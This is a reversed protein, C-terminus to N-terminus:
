DISEFVPTTGVGRNDLVWTHEVVRVSRDPGAITVVDGLTYDVGYKYPHSTNVEGDTLDIYKYKNLEIRSKGRALAQVVSTDKDQSSVPPVYLVRRDLGETLHDDNNVASFVNTGYLNPSELAIYALNKHNAISVLHKANSLNGLERSFIVPTGREIDFDIDILGSRTRDIGSPLSVEFIYDFEGYPEPLHLLTMKLGYHYEEILKSFISLLDGQRREPEIMPSPPPTEKWRRDYVIPMQHTNRDSGIGNFVRRLAAKVYEKIEMPNKDVSPHGPNDIIARHNLLYLISKGSVEIKNTAYNTEITEIIMTQDSWTANLFYGIILTESPFADLAFVMQFSGYTKFKDTWRLSEFGYVFGTVKQDKDTVYLEM